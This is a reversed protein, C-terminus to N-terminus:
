EAMNDLERRRVHQRRDMEFDGAQRGFWGFGIRLWGDPGPWGHDARLGFGATVRKGIDPRIGDAFFGGYFRQMRVAPIAPGGVIYLMRKLMSWNESTARMHGYLQGASFRLDTTAGVLSPNMHAIRAAPEFGFRAGNGQLEDLLGGDRGLRDPLSAGFSELVEKKYSINHGPLCDISGGARTPDTWTGYAVVAPSSAAPVASAAAKDVNPIPGVPVIAVNAFGSLEGNRHDRVADESPAVIVLEMKDADHQDRLHRVTRRLQEFQDPTVVVTSLPYATM